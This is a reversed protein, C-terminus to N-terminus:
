SQLLLDTDAIYSCLVLSTDLPPFFMNPFYVYMIVNKKELKCYILCLNRDKSYRSRTYNSVTCNTLQGHLCSETGTCSIVPMSDGNREEGKHPSFVCPKWFGATATV